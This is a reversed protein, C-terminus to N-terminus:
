QKYDSKQRSLPIIQVVSRSQKQGPQLQLLPGHSFALLVWVAVGAQQGMVGVAAPADQLSPSILLVVM